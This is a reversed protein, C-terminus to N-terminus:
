LGRLAKQFEIAEQEARREAVQEKTLGARRRAARGTPEGTPIREGRLTHDRSDWHENRKQKPKKLQNLGM